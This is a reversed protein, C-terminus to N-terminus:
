AVEKKRQHCTRCLRQRPRQITNEPTFEHGRRCHTTPNDRAARRNNEAQTVAELHSPNCCARNRCLHDVHLGDPIPGKAWEYMVRHTYGIGDTRRGLGIRGYGTSDIAGTFELCGTAADYELKELLRYIVPRLVKACGTGLSVSM